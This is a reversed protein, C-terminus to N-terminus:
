GRPSESFYPVLYAYHFALANPRFDQQIVVYNISFFLDTSLFDDFVFTDFLIESIEFSFM